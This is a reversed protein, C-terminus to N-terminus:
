VYEITAPPKETIDYLVRVVGPIEKLLKKAVKEIKQWPLKLSKATLLDKSAEVIRLVIIDGIISSENQIGTVKDVLLVPFGQFLKPSTLESEVISTAKRIKEVREETVEGTIRLAFGPGPFPQMKLLKPPLTLAKALMRVRTKTLEKLPEFVQFGYNLPNIGAEYLVNFHIKIGKQTEIVDSLITGQVLIEASYSRMAQSINKYFTERFVKRKEQPNVIGKLASFFDEQRDWKQLEVNYRKQFLEQTTKVENERMLGTDIMLPIIQNEEIKPTKKVIEYCVLSDIGGSVAVIARKGELLSKFAGAKKLIFKKPEFREM